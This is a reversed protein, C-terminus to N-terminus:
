HEHEHDQEGATSGDASPQTMRIEPHNILGGADATRVVSVAAVLGVLGVVALLWVPVADTRFSEGLGVASTIGLALLLYYSTEATAEHHEITDHSVGSLNEVYDEASHGTEYVPIVALGSVVLLALAVRLVDESDVWWGYPLILLGILTGLIPIHNLVLHWHAANM